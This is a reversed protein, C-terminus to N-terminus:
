GLPRLVEAELAEPDCAVAPSIERITRGELDTIRVRPPVTPDEVDFRVSLGADRLVGFLRAAAFVEAWVDEGVLEDQPDLVTRFDDLRHVSAHGSPPVTFSM